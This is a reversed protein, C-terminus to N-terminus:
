PAEAPLFGTAQPHILAVRGLNLASRTSQLACCTRGAPSAAELMPWSDQARASSRDPVVTISMNVTDASCSDADDTAWKDPSM